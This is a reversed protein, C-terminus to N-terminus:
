ENRLGRNLMSKSRPKVGVGKCFDEESQKVPNDHCKKCLLLINTDDDLLSGYIRRMIKTDSFKHHHHVAREWCKATDCPTYISSLAIKYKKIM